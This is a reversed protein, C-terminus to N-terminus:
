CLSTIIRVVAAVAKLELSREKHNHEWACFSFISTTAFLLLLLNWCSLCNQTTASITFTTAFLLLLLKWSWLGNHTAARMGVSFNYIHRVVITCYWCSGAGCVTTPPQECALVYIISTTAFLLLFLKWSSLGNQTAARMGVSFNYVSHWVVTSCCCSM